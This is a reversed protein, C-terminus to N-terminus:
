DAHNKPRGPRAIMFGETCVLDHMEASTTNKFMVDTQSPQVRLASTKRRCIDNPLKFLLDMDAEPVLPPMDTNFYIDFKKDLEQGSRQYWELSDVNRYITADSGAADAAQQAWHSVTIHDSHGTAGDPGFSFISDPQVQSIVAAIKAVAESTTVQELEGDIYDLWHHGSCGIIKLAEAMEKERVQGITAAPWREEDHSGKEGRTATVCAVKQGNGIAAMMIGAMCFTEDDPHAWIGLITGLQAIDQTTFAPM